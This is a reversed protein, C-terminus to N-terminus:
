NASETAKQVNYHLKSRKKIITKVCEHDSYCVTVVENQIKDCLSQKVYVQDLPSGASIFTPKNVIQIYEFSNM